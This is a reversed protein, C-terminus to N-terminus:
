AEIHKINNLKNNIFTLEIVDPSNLNEKIIIENNYIFNIKEDIECYNSLYFKIAAGHSVIAINESEKEVIDQIKEKMRKSVEECSEGDKNKLKRDLLQETTYSNKKNKAMEKLTELDGLKRENLKSSINIEINNEKAIYKATSIARVYNSSWLQEINQLQPIKSLKEAKKEGEVSLIIKENKIQENQEEENKIKLQESHRILYVKKEM